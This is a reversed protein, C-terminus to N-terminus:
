FNIIEVWNNSLIDLMDFSYPHPLYGGNKFFAAVFRQEIVNKMDSTKTEIIQLFEYNSLSDLNKIKKGEKLKEVAEAFTLYRSYETTENQLHQTVMVIQEPEVCCGDYEFEDTEKNKHFYFESENADIITFGNTTEGQPTEHNLVKIPLKFKLETM